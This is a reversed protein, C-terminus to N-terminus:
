ECITAVINEVVKEIEAPTRQADIIHIRNPAEEARDLYASRVREFFEVREQEFRDLDRGMASVRQQAIAPAIDFLLTVDPDLSGQVWRELAALRSKEM